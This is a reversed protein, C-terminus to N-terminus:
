RGPRPGSRRPHRSPFAVVPRAASTVQVDGRVGRDRVAAQGATGTGPCAMWRRRPFRLRRSVPVPLGLLRRSRRHAPSPAPSPAGSFRAMARGYRASGGGAPHACFSDHAGPRGRREPGGGSSLSVRWGCKTIQHACLCFGCFAAHGESEGAGGPGTPCTSCSLPDNHVGPPGNCSRKVTGRHPAGGGKRVRKAKSALGTVPGAPGPHEHNGLM